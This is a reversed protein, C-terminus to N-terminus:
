IYMGSYKSVKVSSIRINTIYKAISNSVLKIPVEVHLIEKRILRFVREIDGTRYVLGIFEKFNKSIRPKPLPAYM